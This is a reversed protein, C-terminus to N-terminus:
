KISNAMVLLGATLADPSGKILNDCENLFKNGSSGEKNPKRKVLEPMHVTIMESFTGVSETDGRSEATKNAYAVAERGQLATFYSEKCINPNYFYDVFMGTSGHNHGLGFTIIVYMPEATTEFLEGDVLLLKAMDSKLKKIVAEKSPHAGFEYERCTGFYKSGNLHWWKLEDLSNNYGMRSYDENSLETFKKKCWLKGKYFYIKGKGNYSNDEFALQMDNLTAEKLAADYYEEKESYRVKRCRPPINGEEYKIWTRIKM